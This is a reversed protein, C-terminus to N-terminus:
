NSTQSDLISRFNNLTQVQVSPDVFRHRLWIRVTFSSVPHFNEDFRVALILRFSPSVFLKRLLIYLLYNHLVPLNLELFLSTEM